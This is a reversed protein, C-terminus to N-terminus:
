IFFNGNVAKLDGLSEINSDSIGLFGNVIEVEDLNPINEGRIIIDSHVEKSIIIKKLDATTYIDTPNYSLTKRLYHVVYAYVIRKYIKIATIGCKPATINEFII